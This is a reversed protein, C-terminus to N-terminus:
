AELRRARPDNPWYGNRLISVRVTHIQIQTLEAIEGCDGIVPM